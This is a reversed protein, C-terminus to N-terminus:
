QPDSKNLKLLKELIYSDPLDPKWGYAAFVAADLERHTGVLLRLTGEAGSEAMERRIRCREGTGGVLRLPHYCFKERIFRRANFFIPIKPRTGRSRDREADPASTPFM